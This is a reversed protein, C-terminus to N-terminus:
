LIKEAGLLVPFDHGDTDIKIFDVTQISKDKFYDDLEFYQDSYILAEGTNYHKQIYIYNEAETARISSSREQSFNNLSAIPDNRLSLPFKQDLQNYTVFGEKYYINFNKNEQNLRKVESVLPDFGIAKLKDGLTFWHQEIGGSAGVDLLFFEEFSEIKSSEFLKLLSPNFNVSNSAM